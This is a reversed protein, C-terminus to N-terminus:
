PDPQDRDDYQLAVCTRAAPIADVFSKRITPLLYSIVALESRRAWYSFQLFVIKECQFFRITRYYISRALTRTPDIGNFFELLKKAGFKNAIYRIRFNLM